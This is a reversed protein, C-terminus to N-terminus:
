SDYSDNKGRNRRNGKCALNLNIVDDCSLKTRRSPISGGVRPEEPGQEVLQAVAGYKNPHNIPSSGMVLPTM